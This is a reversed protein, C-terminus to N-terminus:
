ALEGATTQVDALDHDTNDQHAGAVPLAVVFRAGPRGDGREEVWVRGGHLQVHEKVLALGLGVGDSTGRQGAASAARSFRDFIRERDDPRVGPGLDEVAIRAEDGIHEVVVESAGGAYKEANSLLNTIVRVMRRKDAEVTLSSASPAVRVPVDSGTSVVAHRVLEDIRVHDLELHAAGADFRSIELLDEVMASFRQVDAVLLDLAFQARAPMEERRGQLVEISASLTTLPSRLEHSVDSAFRADREIREELATAMENFSAVLTGLDPDDNRALRTDLRGGAIAVAAASVDALPRLVRRSATTGIAAGALTTLVAAATLATALNNLAADVDGFSTIEFYAAGVARIPVGIAYHTEGNLTYRQRAPAGESIVTERLPEPMQDRGKSQNSAFWEDDHRLVPNGGGPNQLTEILEIRPTDASRLGDRVQSANQFAQSTATSERQRVINERVLGYAAVSLVVSLLLAGLAFAATVRARLGLLLRRRRGTGPEGDLQQSDVVM